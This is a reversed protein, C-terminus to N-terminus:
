QGFTPTYGLKGWVAQQFSILDPNSPQRDSVGQESRGFKVTLPDKWKWYEVGHRM